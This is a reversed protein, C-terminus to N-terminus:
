AGDPRDHRLTQAHSLPLSNRIAVPKTVVWTAWSRAPLNDHPVYHAKNKHQRQADHPAALCCAAVTARSSFPAATAHWAWSSEKRGLLNIGKAGAHIRPTYEVCRLSDVSAGISTDPM